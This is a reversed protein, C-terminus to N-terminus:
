SGFYQRLQLVAQTFCPKSDILKIECTPFQPVHVFGYHFPVSSSRREFPILRCIFHVFMSSTQLLTFAQPSVQVPVTLRSCSEGQFDYLCSLYEFGMYQSWLVSDQKRFINKVQVSECSQLYM